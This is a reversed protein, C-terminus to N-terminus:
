QEFTVSRRARKRELAETAAVRAKALTAKAKATKAQSLQDKTSDASNLREHQEQERQKFSSMLSETYRALEKPKGVYSVLAHPGQRERANFFAMVKQPVLSGFQFAANFPDHNDILKWRKNIGNGPLIDVVVTDYTVKQLEGSEGWSPKYVGVKTWDLSRLSETAGISHKAKFRRLPSGMHEHRADLFTRMVERVQLNDPLKQHWAIGTARVMMEELAAPWSTTLSVVEDSSLDGQSSIWTVFFEKERIASMSTPVEFTSTSAGVSTQVAYKRKREDFATWMPMIHARDMLLHRIINQFCRHTADNHEDDACRGTRVPKPLREIYHEVQATYTAPGARAMNCRLVIHQSLQQARSSSLRSHQPGFPQSYSHTISPMLMRLRAMTHLGM